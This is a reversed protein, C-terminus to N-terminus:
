AFYNTRLYIETGSTGYGPRLPRRPSRVDLARFDDVLQQLVAPELQPPLLAPVDERYIPSGSHYTAGSAVGRGFGRSGGRSAGARFNTGASGRSAGGCGRGRGRLQNSTMSSTPTAQRQGVDPGKGARGRGGASPLIFSTDASGRGRGRTKNQTTMTASFVSVIHPYLRWSPTNHIKRRPFRYLLTM